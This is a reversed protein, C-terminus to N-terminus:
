PEDTTIHMRDSLFEGQKTSEPHRWPWFNIGLPFFRILQRVLPSFSDMVPNM